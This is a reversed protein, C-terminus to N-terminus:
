DFFQLRLNEVAVFFFCVCVCESLKLQARTCIYLFCEFRIEFLVLSVRLQGTAQINKYSTGRVCHIKLVLCVFFGIQYIFKQDSVFRINYLKSSHPNDIADGADYVKYWVYRCIIIYFSPKNRDMLIKASWFGCEGAIHDPATLFCHQMQDSPVRWNPKYALAM